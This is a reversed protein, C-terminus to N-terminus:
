SMFYLVSNDETSLNVRRGKILEVDARYGPSAAIRTALTFMPWEVRDSSAKPKPPILDEHRSALPHSGM